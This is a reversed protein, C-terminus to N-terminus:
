SLLLMTVAEDEMEREIRALVVKLAEQTRQQEIIRLLSDRSAIFELVERLREQAENAGLAQAVKAVIFPDLEKKVEERIVTRLAELKEPLRVKRRKIQKHRKDKQVEGWFLVHPQQYKTDFLLLLSM